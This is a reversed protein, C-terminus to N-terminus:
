FPTGVFVEQAEGRLVRHGVRRQRTNQKKKRLLKGCLGVARAGPSM